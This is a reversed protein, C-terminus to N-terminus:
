NGVLSPPAENKSQRGDIIVEAGDSGMKIQVLGDFRNHISLLAVSILGLTIFALAQPLLKM